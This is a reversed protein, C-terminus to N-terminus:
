SPPREIPLGACTAALDNLMAWRAAQKILDSVVETEIERGLSAMFLAVADAFAQRDREVRPDGDMLQRGAVLAADWQPKSLDRLTM